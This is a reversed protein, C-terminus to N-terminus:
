RGVDGWFEWMGSRDSACLKGVRVFCDDHGSGVGRVGANDAPRSHFEERDTRGATRQSLAIIICRRAYAAM